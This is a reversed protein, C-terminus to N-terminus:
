VVRDALSEEGPGALVGVARGSRAVITGAIRGWREPPYEKNGWGAGPQILVPTHLSGSSGEPTPLEGIAGPDFGLEPDPLGMARLLTATREVVHDGRLPVSRNIWLASSPERRDGRQAGIRWRAGSLRAIVGAKHNGMLDLAVDPRFDWMERLFRGISRFTRPRFPRKRWRRLRVRILRDLAPHNELIPAFPDEVVWALSAEPRHAALAGLTPLCHVVDGLASTRILLIRPPRGLRDLPLAEPESSM